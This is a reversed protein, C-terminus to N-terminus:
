SGKYGPQKGDCLIFQTYTGNLRIVCPQLIFVIMYGSSMGGCFQISLWLIEAQVPSVFFSLFYRFESKLKPSKPDKTWGFNHKRNLKQQQLLGKLSAPM